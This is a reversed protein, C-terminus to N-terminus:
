FLTGLEVVVMRVRKVGIHHDLMDTLELLPLGNLTGDIGEGVVITERLGYENM